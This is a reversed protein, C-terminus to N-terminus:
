RLAGSSRQELEAWRDGAGVVQRAAWFAAAVEALDRGLEAATEHAWVIGLQDV